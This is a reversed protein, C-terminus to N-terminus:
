LWNEIMMLDSSIEDVQPYLLWRGDSSVSLEGIWDLPSKEPIFIRRVKTTNLDFFDIEPRDKELNLFYIGSQVPFWEYDSLFNLEPMGKVEQEASGDTRVQWL